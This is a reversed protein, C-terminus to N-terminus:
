KGNKNKMSEVKKQTEMVQAYREQWKSQKKPQTRTEKMKALIKAHDIIYTQIVFQLLLTITNSVTYYWTLASPLRNFFFLMMFPFIYPMYKMAPNDQTPQNGINYLSIAFSTLVATITFLSIHDGFGFPISFPLQAIVDYSSLDHSWLFSEGRLSINSNFFSYLAFFIPIQLLAPICGGLPNVGAERFVKMQDMAFAQQDAGHKKKLEDLEPRLVKMKAGSLYSGYMLPATFLRIFLTLLLIAWGFNSILKAFFGFVPMIVYMNVPRVFSYVDRGLNIIGDMGNNLKELTHYDNPGYYLQMPISAQSNVPVHMQLNAEIKALTNTTDKETSREWKVGGSAFNNKAILTTNFFQQVFSMWQAPKELTHDNHSSIYDFKNDESFCINSMQREYLNSKENQTTTWNWLINVNGNSLLKDAGNMNINWDILYSNPKIIYQHTLSQGNKAAITFSVTQSGDANKIISPQGFYLNTVANANNNGTNINYSIKDNANAGLVIPKGNVSSNYKKLEVGKVSGGKNSFTIKIVENEVTTFQETGLAATTFDGAATLKDATDRKLFEKNIASTDRLKLQKQTILEISDKDHKEKAQIAANQQNSFYFYAFFLIALLVMGVITNKDTQM